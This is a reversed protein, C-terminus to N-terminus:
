CTSQHRTQTTSLKKSIYEKRYRFIVIFEIPWPSPFICTGDGVEASAGSQVQNEDNANHTLLSVSCFNLPLVAQGIKLQTAQITDLKRGQSVEVTQGQPTKAFWNKATSVATVGGKQPSSTMRRSMHIFWAPPM